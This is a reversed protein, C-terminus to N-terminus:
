RANRNIAPFLVHRCSKVYERNAHANLVIVRPHVGDMAEVWVVACQTARNCVGHANQPVQALLAPNGVFLHPRVFPAARWVLVPWVSPQKPETPGACLLMPKIQICVSVMQARGLGQSACRLRLLHVILHCCVSDLSALMALQLKVPKRPAALLTLVHKARAELVDDKHVAYSTMRVFRQILVNRAM